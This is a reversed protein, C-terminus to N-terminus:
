LPSPRLSSLAIAPEPAPMCHVTVLNRGARKSSYLAQDCRSLFGEASENAYSAAVGISATVSMGGPLGSLGAIDERLREAIAESERLSAGRLLMVFEEGGYRALIDSARTGARLVSSVRRLVEDGARHGLADNVRKFHDIDIFLLSVPAGYRSSILLDRELNEEFARRNLLGTLVDTHALTNLGLRHECLSLCMLGTINGVGLIMYLYSFTTEIADPHMLDRPTPGFLAAVCWTIHFLATATLQWAVARVPSRLAPDRHRFLMSATLVSIFGLVASHTVMRALLDSHVLTSWFFVPLTALCVGVRWPFLRVPENLIEAAARYLLINGAFIVYNAILVSFLAPAWPRAAVLLVFALGCLIVRILSGIGRLDPITRHVVRFGMLMILLAAAYGYM